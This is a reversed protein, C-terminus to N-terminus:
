YDMLEGPICLEDIPDFAAFICSELERPVEEFVARTMSIAYFRTQLTIM